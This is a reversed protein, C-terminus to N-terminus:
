LRVLRICAKKISKGQKIFENELVDRCTKAKDRCRYDFFRIYLSPNEYEELLDFYEIHVAWEFYTTNIGVPKFNGRKWSNWVPSNHSIFQRAGALVVGDNYFM